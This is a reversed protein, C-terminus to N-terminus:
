VQTLVDRLESAARATRSLLECVPTGQNELNYFGRACLDVVTTLSKASAAEKLHDSDHEVRLMHVVSEVFGIQKDWEKKDLGMGESEECLEDASSVFRRYAREVPTDTWVKQTLTTERVPASQFAEVMSAWGDETWTECEARMLEEKEEAEAVDDAVAAGFQQVAENETLGSEAMEAATVLNMQWKQYESKTM